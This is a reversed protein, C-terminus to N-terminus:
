GLLYEIMNEVQLLVLAVIIAFPTHSTIKANPIYEFITLMNLTLTQHTTNM